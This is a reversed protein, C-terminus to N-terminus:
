QIVEILENSEIDIIEAWVNVIGPYYKTACTKAHQLDDLDTEVVEKEFSIFDRELEDWILNIGSKTIAVIQIKTKSTNM